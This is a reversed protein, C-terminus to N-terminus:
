QNLIGSLRGFPLVKLMVKKKFKLEGKKNRYFPQAIARSNGKVDEGQIVIAEERDSAKSPRIGSLDRSMYSEAMIIVKNAGLERCLKRLSKMALDKDSFNMMCINTGTKTIIFAVPAISGLTRLNEIGSDLFSELLKKMFNRRKDKLRQLNYKSKFIELQAFFLAL